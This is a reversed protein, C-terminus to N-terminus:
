NNATKILNRRPSSDSLTLILNLILSVVYLLIDVVQIVKKDLSNLSSKENGDLGPKGIM